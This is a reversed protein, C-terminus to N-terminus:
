EARARDWRGTGRRASDAPWSARSAFLFDVTTRVWTCPVIAPWATPSTYSQHTTFGKHMGGSFFLSGPATLLFYRPCFVRQEMRDYFTHPSILNM